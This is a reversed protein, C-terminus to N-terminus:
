GGLLAGVKLRVLLGKLLSGGGNAGALCRAALLRTSTHRCLGSRRQKKKKGKKAAWCSDPAGLAQELLVAAELQQRSLLLRGVSDVDPGLWPPPAAAPDPAPAKAPASPRARKAAPLTTPPHLPQMIFPSTPLCGDLREGSRAQMLRTPPRAATSGSRPAAVARRRNYLFELCESWLVTCPAYAALLATPARVAAPPRGPCSRSGIGGRPARVSVM